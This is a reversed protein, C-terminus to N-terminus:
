SWASVVERAQGPNLRPDCLTTSADSGTSTADGGLCETVDGAAVELHLGGPHQRHGLLIERVARVEEIIDHVYRTKIGQPARVTNGHMPDSAWVVPHGARRVAAVLPPLSERVSRAGMRVILMLRGPERGPDLMRCLGVVDDPSAGPGIKCAVPNGVSALLSVHAADLQRTREGIWPLHTSALIPASTGDGGRILADEYGIVLAEHSAWPGSGARELGAAARRQRHAQVWQLVQTSLEFGWLMRRPDPRRAAASNAESNVIHGRFVSVEATGIKETPSSRPKAFQGALRGIRVVPLGTRAAVLDSLQELVELKSHVHWATCEWFSEACDGVHLLHAKGAAVEALSERLVALDAATVPTGAAALSSITRSYAPHHHWQPQQAATM